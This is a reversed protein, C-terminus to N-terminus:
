RGSCQTGLDAHRFNKVRSREKRTYVGESCGKKKETERARGPLGKGDRKKYGSKLWNGYLTRQM